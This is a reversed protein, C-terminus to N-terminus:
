GAQPRRSRRALWLRWLMLAALVATYIHVETFHNKGTRMWYFHLLALGAVAYVLRHLARWRLAGLKKVARNFSTAALALMLVMALVGMLIFPRQAVDHAIDQAEFGMDLWAYAVLHTSGYAFAWLGLGRRWRALWVWGWTKRLPTVALTLCLMRLTWDGLGRILAEAPNAGLWGALGAFWLWAMPVGCLSLVFAKTWPRALVLQLRSM